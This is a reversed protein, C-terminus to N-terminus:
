SFSLLGGDWLAATSPFVLEALWIFSRSEWVDECNTELYQRLLMLRSAFLEEM